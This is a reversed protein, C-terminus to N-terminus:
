ELHVDERGENQSQGGDNGGRNQLRAHATVVTSSTLSGTVVSSGLLSSASL